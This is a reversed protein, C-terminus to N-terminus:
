GRVNAGTSGNAVARRAARADAAAVSIEVLDAVRVPDAAESLANPNVSDRAFTDLECLNRQM